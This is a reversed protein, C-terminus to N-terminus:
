DQKKEAPRAEIWRLAERAQRSARNANSKAEAQLVPIAEAAAPGANGLVEIAFATFMGGNQIVKMLALHADHDAPELDLIRAAVNVRAAEDNLLLGRKMQPLISEKTMGMALLTKPIQSFLMGNTGNMAELLVPAAAAAGPGIEGLQSAAMWRDSAPQHNTLGDILFNLAEMQGGNINCLAGALMCKQNWNTTQEFLERVLPLAPVANSGIKGFTAAFMRSLGSGNTGKSSKVCDLLAPVAGGAKPGLWGLSQLALNRTWPDPKQLAAVLLPVAEEAGDGTTGLLFLSQRYENTNGSKLHPELLPLLVQAPPKMEKLVFPAEDRFEQASVFEPLQMSEPLVSFLRHINTQLTTNRRTNFAEAVLYPVANTGMARFAELAAKQRLPAWPTGVRALCYEKLWESAPKGKYEPEQGRGLMLWGGAAVIAAGLLGAVLLRRGKWTRVCEHM